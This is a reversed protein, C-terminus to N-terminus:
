DLPMSTRKPVLKKINKNKPTLQFNKNISKKQKKQQYSMHNKLTTPSELHGIDIDSVQHCVSVPPKM